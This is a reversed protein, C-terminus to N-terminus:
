FHYAVGAAAYGSFREYAARVMAKFDADAPVGLFTRTGPSTDHWEVQDFWRDRDACSGLPLVIATPLQRTRDAHLAEVLEVNMEIEATGVDRSAGFKEGLNEMVIRGISYGSSITQTSGAPRSEGTIAGNFCGGLDWWDWQHLPNLWHGYRGTAPDREVDTFRRVFAEFQPEIEALVGEFYDLQCARLHENLKRLALHSGHHSLDPQLWTVSGDPNCRLRARHLRRLGETVDDFVLKERPFDNKGGDKFAALARDLESQLSSFARPIFVYALGFMIGIYSM